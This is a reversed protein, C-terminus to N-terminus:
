KIGEPCCFIYVMDIKVQDGPIGQVIIKWTGASPNPIKIISFTNATIRVAELENGAMEQGDPKWITYSTRPNLTSIIINAEEVGIRPIEFPIELRGSDPILTDALVVTETSYIINYFQNFVEKLDEASRVEVSVGGTAESIMRLEEPNANGNSNLCVSHIKYGNNNANNIANQKSAESAALAQGTKDKPLDTNGDSLLIIVSDLEKNGSDRLMNTALEIAKGIDTDGDSSAARISNSLETKAVKGNMVKIGRQLVIGDDFVVAGMYNGTDRALGLFLDVAEYRLSNRDTNYMSGSQDLVFVVNMRNATKSDEARAKIMSMNSLICALLLTLGMHLAIPKVRKKM